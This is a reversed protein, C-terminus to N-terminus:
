IRIAELVRRKVNEINAQLSPRVYAHSPGRRGGVRFEEIGAHPASFRGIASLGDRTVQGSNALRGSVRHVVRKAEDMIQNAGDFTAQGVADLNFNTLRSSAELHGNVDVIIAVM